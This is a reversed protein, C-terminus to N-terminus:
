NVGKIVGSGYVVGYSSVNESKFARPLTHLCLSPSSTNTNRFPVTANGHHLFGFELHPFRLTNCHLTTRSAPISFLCFQGRTTATYHWINVANTVLEYIFICAVTINIACLEYTPYQHSICFSLSWQSSWSTPPRIINFHIKSLYSPITPIPDIHSLIRVLPPSKHVRYHVEPNRLISPLERTAASNAAEWSHSLEM